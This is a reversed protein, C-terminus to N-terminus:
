IMFPRHTHNSWTSQSRMYMSSCFGQISVLKASGGSGVEVSERREMTHLRIEIDTMPRPRCVVSGTQMERLGPILGLIRSISM